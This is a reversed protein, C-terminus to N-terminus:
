DNIITAEGTTANVAVNVDGAASSADMDVVWTLAGNLMKLEASDFRGQALAMAAMIAAEPTVTAGQPNVADEVDGPETATVAGDHVKVEIPATAGEPLIDVSWKPTEGDNHDVAVVTGPQSHLAVTMAYAAEQLLPDEAGAPAAEAPGPGPADSGDDGTPAPAAVPASQADQTAVEAPTAAPAATNNSGSSCASLALTTALALPVFTSITKRM